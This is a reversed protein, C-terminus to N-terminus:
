RRSVTVWGDAEVSVRYQNYRFEITSDTGSGGAEPRGFLTDRIGAVDVVEYLPPSRIDTIPVEEAEAIASVIVTTLDRPEAPDYQDQTVFTWDGNSAEWPTPADVNGGASTTENRNQDTEHSPRSDNPQEDM